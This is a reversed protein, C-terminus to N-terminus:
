ECEALRELFAKCEKGVVDNAQAAKEIVDATQKEDLGAEVCRVLFGDMFPTGLQAEKEEGEGEKKKKHARTGLGVALGTGTAAAAGVGISTKPHGKIWKGAQQAPKKGAEYTKKLFAPVAAAKQAMEQAELEAKLAAEAKRRRGSSVAAIIGAITPVGVAAAGLGGYLRQKGLRDEEKGFLNQGWRKLADLDEPAKASEALGSRYGGVGKGWGKVTKNPAKGLLWELPKAAGRIAPMVAKRGLWALPDAAQKGLALGLNGAASKKETLPLKPKESTWDLATNKRYEQALNPTTKITPSVREMPINTQKSMEKSGKKEHAREPL